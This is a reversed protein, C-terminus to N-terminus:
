ANTYCLLLSPIYQSTTIIKGKDRINKLDKPLVFKIEPQSLFPLDEWKGESLVRQTYRIKLEEAQVEDIGLTHSLKQSFIDGGMEFDNLAKLQGNRVLFIQTSRGGIDLFIGTVKQGFFALFLSEAEPVLRSNNLNLDKAVRRIEELYNRPMFTLLIRSVLEQGSFGTLQNVQYGDIKRQLIRCDIFHLDQPLIGFKQFIEQSIEQQAQNIIKKYIEGDEERSIIKKPNERRFYNFVIREKLISGPPRWLTIHDKTKIKAQNKAENVVELIAGKMTEKELDLGDQIGLRYYEKLDAGLIINKEKERKFILAKIAETGIDLALFIEEKRKKSIPPSIM